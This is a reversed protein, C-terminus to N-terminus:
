PPPLPADPDFSSPQARRSSRPEPTPRAPSMPRPQGRRKVIAVRAPAPADAPAAETPAPPPEIAPAPSSPTIAPAPSSPASPVPGDSIPEVMPRTARAVTKDVAPPESAATAVPEAPPQTASAAAVPETPTAGADRTRSLARHLGFAGVYGISMALAVSALWTIRARPSLTTPSGAIPIAPYSTHTPPRASAALEAAIVSPAAFAVAAVPPGPAAAAPPPSPAATAVPPTDAIGAIFADLMATSSSTAAFAASPPSAPTSGGLLARERVREDAFRESVLAGLELRSGHLAHDTALSALALRLEAASQYRDRRRRALLRLVIADLAPPCDARYRSPGAVSTSLIRDITALDNDAQFLRRSSILEWLVVGLSFLDSRPDLPKGRAQEPSMYALKGKISATRTATSCLQKAIGFDVLKPVGDYSVIINSPSIDRHVVGREHVYDLAAAVEDVIRILQALPIPRKRTAADALLSRVDRGELYEMTYFSVRDSVELPGTEVINPHVLTACLSAERRFLEVFEPEEALHPLIKKIAVLPGRGARAVFVEAMGGIALRHVIRYRGIASPTGATDRAGAM